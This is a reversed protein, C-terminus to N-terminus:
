LFTPQLFSGCYVVYNQLQGPLNVPMGSTAVKHGPNENELIAAGLEQRRWITFRSSGPSSTSTLTYLLYVNLGVEVKLKM